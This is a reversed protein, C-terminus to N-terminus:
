LKVSEFMSIKSLFIFAVTAITANVVGQLINFPLDFIAVSADAMVLDPIVYLFAMLLGGIYFSSLSLYRAKGKNLLTKRLLIFLYGAVIGEIFKIGATWIALGGVLPSIFSALIFIFTDSFNLYGQGGAIPIPLFATCVFSMAAFVAVMAIKIIYTTRRNATTM